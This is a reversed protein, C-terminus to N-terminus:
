KMFPSAPAKIIYQALNEKGKEDNSNFFAEPPDSRM